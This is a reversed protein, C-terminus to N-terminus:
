LNKIWNELAQKPLFGIKRSIVKGGKFLFLAPINTIGYIDSIISEKDVDIRGVKIISECDLEELIPTIMKCPTCWSAYFDVLVLEDKSVFEKFNDVNLEIM